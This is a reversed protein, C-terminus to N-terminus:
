FLDQKARLDEVIAEIILDAKIKQIADVTKIRKISEQKGFLTIKNKEVLVDLNKDILPIAKQLYENSVDFLLVQYGALACSLAIGQGMTGAGVLAVSRIVHNQM